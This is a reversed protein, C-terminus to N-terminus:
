AKIKELTELIKKISKSLPYLEVLKNIERSSHNLEPIIVKKLNNIDGKGIFNIFKQLVRGQEKPNLLDDYNIVISPYISYYYIIERYSKEWKSIYAQFPMKFKKLKINSHAVVIPHRYVIVLKFSPIHAQWFSFFAPHLKLAWSNTAQNYIKVLFKNAQIITIIRQIKKLAGKRHTNQKFSRTSIKREKDYEFYGKPNNIDAKKLNKALGIFVGAEELLKMTLSTGSRSEGLVIFVNKPTLKFLSQKKFKKLYIKSVFSSIM